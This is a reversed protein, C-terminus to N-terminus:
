VAEERLLLWFFFLAASPLRTEEKSAQYEEKRREGSLNETERKLVVFCTVASVTELTTAAERGCVVVLAYCM